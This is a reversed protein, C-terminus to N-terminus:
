LDKLTKQKTEIALFDSFGNQEANLKSSIKHFNNEFFDNKLVNVIENQWVRSGKLVKSMANPSSFFIAKIELNWLLIM